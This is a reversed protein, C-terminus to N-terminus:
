HKHKPETLEVLVKFTKPHVFGIKGDIGKRGKKDILEGGKEEVSKLAGDIDAVSLSIHHLGEGKKEIYKAVGSSADLPEILEIHANGLPLTVARVGQEPMVEAKTAKIGLLKEFIKATEDVNRVAIAVHNLSKIMKEELINQLPM